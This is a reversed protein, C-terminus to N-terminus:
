QVYLSIRGISVDVAEHNDIQPVFTIHLHAPDWRKLARQHAVLDTVDLTYNLGSGGHEGNRESAEALGFMPLTGALAEPHENPAAGEPLNVYVHYIPARKLGKINELDLYARQEGGLSEPTAPPSRLSVRANSVGSG